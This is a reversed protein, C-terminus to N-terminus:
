PSPQPWTSPLARQASRSVSIPFADLIALIQHPDHSSPPPTQRLHHTPSLQCGSSLQNAAPCCHHRLCLPTPDMRLLLKTKPRCPCCCLLLPLKEASAFSSGASLCPPELNGKTSGTVISFKEMM